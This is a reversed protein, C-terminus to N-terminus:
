RIAEGIRTAAQLLGAAKDFTEQWEKEPSSDAVIGAGVGFVARRNEFVATRIAISFQSEGNYGFYGIAGTYIGRDDPELESIIERARKKPAGTISGGPSCLRLATPHSIESRLTGIVTSVLHHVQEYSELKLLEPVTVSGYECIRGLDNRELDTIMVLEAVEKPSTLLDYAHRQDLQIDAHRPRTGKIPRTTIRRGSMRLFCEPSSSVIQTGNLDLFAAQPSPSYHRLAEYYPWADGSFEAEFLHCLCVQYIDGAAIYEQARRVMALYKERAVRPRFAISPFDAESLVEGGPMPPHHWKGSQHQYIHLRDYFGFRFRGDFGLWGIAAGEPFGLDATPRARRRLEGELREWDEPGGDLILDPDSALLSISEPGALSSELLAFGARHRLARFGEELSLSESESTRRMSKQNM